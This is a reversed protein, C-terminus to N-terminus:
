DGSWGCWGVSDETDATDKSPVYVWPENPAAKTWNWSQQTERVWYCARIAEGDLWVASWEGAKETPPPPFGGNAAVARDADISGWKSERRAQEDRARAMTASNDAEKEAQRVAAQVSAAKKLVALFLKAQQASVRSGDPNRGTCGDLVDCEICGHADLLTSCGNWWEFKQAWELAAAAVTFGSEAAQAFFAEQEQTLKM